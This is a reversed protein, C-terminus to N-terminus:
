DIYKYAEPLNRSDAKHAEIWLRAGYETKCCVPFDDYTYTEKISFWFPWYKYKYEPFFREGHGVVRIRYRM